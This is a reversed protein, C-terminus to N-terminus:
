YPHTVGARWGDWGLWEEVRAKVGGEELFMMRPHSLYRVAVLALMPVSLLFRLNLSFSRSNLLDLMVLMAATVPHALWEMM